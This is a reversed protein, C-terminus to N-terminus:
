YSSNYSHTFVAESAIESFIKEYRSCTGPGSAISNERLKSMRAMGSNMEMKNVM